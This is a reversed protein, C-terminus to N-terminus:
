RTATLGDIAEVQWGGSPHRALRLELRKLEATEPDFARRVPVMCRCSWKGPEGPIEEIEALGIAEVLDRAELLHAELLERLPEPIVLDSM